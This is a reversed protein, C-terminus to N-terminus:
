EKAYGSKGTLVSEPHRQLYDALTEVAQAASTLRDLATTLQYRMPSQRGIMSQADELTATFQRQGVAFADASERLSRVLDPVTEAADAVAPQLDVLVGDARALVTQLQTSSAHLNTSMPGVTRQLELMLQEARAASDRVSALTSEVIGSSLLAAIGQLTTDVNAIMDDLAVGELQATLNDTITPITAIEPVSPDAGVLRKPSDPSDLLMVLLKGTVFSQSQLQARLGERGYFEQRPAKGAVGSYRVRSPELEIYVPILVEGTETNFVMRIDRVSGIRFGQFAVPAGVDLGGLNGSFYLVYKESSRLWRGGGLIVIGAMAILIAVVVFAGIMASNARKSM